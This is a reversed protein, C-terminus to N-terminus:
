ECVPCVNMSHQSGALWQAIHWSLFSILSLVQGLSIYLRPPPLRSTFLYNCPSGLDMPLVASHNLVHWPYVLEPNLNRGLRVDANEWPM